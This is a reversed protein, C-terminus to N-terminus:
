TCSTGETVRTETKLKKKSECRLKGVSGQFYSQGPWEMTQFYLSCWSGSVQYNNNGGLEGLQPDPPIPASYCTCYIAKGGEFSEASIMFPLPCQGARALRSM